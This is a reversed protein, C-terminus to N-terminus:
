GLAPALPLWIESGAREDSPGWRYHGDARYAFVEGSECYVFWQEDESDDGPWTELLGGLDFKFTSRGELPEVSVALLRQGDLETAAAAIEADASDSRAIEIGQAICRWNCCYIWLHWEGRPTVTRRALRAKIEASAGTSAKIPDRIELSPKGFEFTLMSGHGKKANWAPLGIVPAFLRDVPDCASSGSPSTTM